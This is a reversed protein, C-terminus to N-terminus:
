RIEFLEPDIDENFKKRSFAYQTYDGSLEEMKMLSLSMDKRDFIFTMQRIKAAYGKKEPVLKVIYTDKKQEVTTKFGRTMRKVDGSMCASLLRQLGNLMPNSSIKMKSVSNNDKMEFATETMKIFDGNNFSLLVNEPRRYYFRGSKVVDNALISMSRTQVFDCTISKISLSKDLLEQEFESMAGDATQASVANCSVALLM